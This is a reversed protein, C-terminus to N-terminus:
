RPGRNRFLGGEPGELSRAGQFKNSPDGALLFGRLAHVKRPKKNASPM